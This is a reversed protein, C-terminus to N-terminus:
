RTTAASSRPPRAGSRPSITGDAAAILACMAMSAKAFDKSKYKGVQTKTNRQLDTLRSKLQDWLAMVADGRKARECRAAHMWGLMEEGARVGTTATVTLHARTFGASPSNATAPAGARADAALLLDADLLSDGAALLPGAGTRRAVERSRGREQDAARARRLDQPGAPVGDLRAARAWAALEKVWGDPLRDATSWSTPSCTRPSASRACGAPDATAACTRARGRRAARLRRRAARMVADDLGPRVRRRRAPPRRQRLDRVAAAPGPLSIRAYQERTRTTTPVFSRPTPLTRRLLGAAAETMYSLPQAEHVEVCLLRPAQADPM